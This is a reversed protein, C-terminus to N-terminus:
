AVASVADDEVALTVPPGLGQLGRASRGPAIGRFLSFFCVARAAIIGRDSRERAVGRLGDRRARFCLPASASCFCLQTLRHVGAGNGVDDDVGVDVHCRGLILPPGLRPGQIPARDVITLGM